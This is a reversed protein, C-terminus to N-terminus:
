TAWGTGSARGARQPILDPYATLCFVEKRRLGSRLALPAVHIFACRWRLSMFLLAAGASRCSYFRLALPAVIFLKNM